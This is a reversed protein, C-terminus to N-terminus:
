KSTFYRCYYEFRVRYKEILCSQHHKKAIEMLENFNYLYNNSAELIEKRFKRDVSAYYRLKEDLIGAYKNIWGTGKQISGNQFYLSIIRTIFYDDNVVDFPMLDTCKDLVKEAQQKKGEIILSGALQAFTRRIGLVEMQRIITHDLYIKSDGINGWRFKRMLLQYTNEINMPYTYPPNNMENKYPVLRYAFGERVLYKDLGLNILEIPSLFYLPREWNNSAIIDLILIDSRLLYNNNIEFYVADETKKIEEATFDGSGILRDKNITLKLKRAPLYDRYDSDNVHLKTRPNDSRIFELADRLEVYDEFRNVLHVITCKGYLFKEPPFSIPLADAKNIAHMLQSIYWDAGLYPQLVVRIDTRVSEVEQNYWVPYTDNDGNTFLIANKRCSNLYDYGFDRAAYRDSRDHDDKNESFLIYLVASSATVSILLSLILSLHEKFFSYVAVAGFGIWICFAYYSGAYVYDRERPTSPVENLYVSIAMGTFLFLLMIATFGTKHHRYHWILGLIGLILPLFYYSNRAKNKTVSGPPKDQSGLRLNDFVNIGSIWNGHFVNGTGQVDDQRGVFNWFFYRWYMYGVQYRFFFRLNEAFTPRIITETKGNITVRVKKGKIKGWYKYADTYNDGNDSMRPFITMFRKDYKYKPNLKTRIYKGKFPIYTTREVVGTIPANYYQGYFLPRSGYHERNLYHYLSFPNDPNDMDISINEQSRLLISLYCTYGAVMFILSLIIAQRTVNQKRIAKILLVTLVAALLLFSIYLGSNFPLKLSNVCFLDIVSAMKAIGPIFIVMMFGLVLVSIILSGLIGRNDFHRNKSMLIFIIAPIALLNLLHVGISISMIFAIFLLWRSAYIRDTQNDWRLVAWFVLATLFSSFAYVEAEVASFWFSDTFAFSLSGTFGAALLVAVQQKGTKGEKVILKKALITITWFLFMVTLASTIASLLNVMLAVKQVDKGALLAFLRAVIMFLPAGPSHSVQLKYACALFESCDWMSTSPELTTAYVSLAIIFVIWGSLNNLTRYNMALPYKINKRYVGTKSHNM